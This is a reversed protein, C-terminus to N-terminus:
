KNWEKIISILSVVREKLDLVDFDELTIFDVIEASYATKSSNYKPSKSYSESIIVELKKDNDMSITSTIEHKELLWKEITTRSLYNEIERGKTIWCRGEGIESSIRAKTENLDSNIRKGDKDIMVFANKNLKLAPVINKNFWDADFTMNSLLRGGYFMITYHQGEILTPDLLQIWRNLYNRDSPGEVWIVGNSQLLDSARIGIDDLIQKTDHYNSITKITSKDGDNQVHLIQSNSNRSFTDIVINSHTTIFFYTSNKSSYDIIYNYLRRQLSPHLNNELEEFAFVYDSPNTKELELRVVLNMLVLLITKIGSGMKSLAIRNDNRDIFFIEWRNDEIEQILIRKFEIDPNIINNLEHLLKKEILNSDYKEVNLIQQITNTTGTGNPSISTDSSKLEPQIDREAYISSFRKNLFPPTLKNPLEHIYRTADTEYKIRLDKFLHKGNLDFQYEIIAGNFRIGYDFHNHGPLGGRTDKRFTKSIDDITLQHCIIVNPENNNRGKGIVEKRREVLYRILDILSSKGSNNKGIIINLPMIKEFGAGESDFCKYNKIKISDTIVM